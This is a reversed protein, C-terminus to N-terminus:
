SENPLCCKKYKKDSGCHCPENRGPKKAPKGNSSNSKEAVAVPAFAAAATRSLGARQADRPSAIILPCEDDDDANKDPMVGDDLNDDDMPLETILRAEPRPGM